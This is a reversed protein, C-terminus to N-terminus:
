DMKWDRQHQALHGLSVTLNPRTVLAKPLGSLDANRLASRLLKTLPQFVAHLCLAHLAKSVVQYKLTPAPPTAPHRWHSVFFGHGSSM